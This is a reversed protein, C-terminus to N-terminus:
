NPNVAKMPTMIQNSSQQSVMNQIRQPSSINETPLRGGSPDSFKMKKQKLTSKIDPNM